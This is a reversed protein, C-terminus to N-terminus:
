CFSFIHAPLLTKSYTRSLDGSYISAYDIFVDFGHHTLHYRIFQPWGTNSRRYSIFVTKEIGRMNPRGARHAHRVSDFVSDRRAREHSRARRRELNHRIRSLGV